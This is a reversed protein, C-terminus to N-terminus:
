SLPYPKVKQLADNFDVKNIFGQILHLKNGKLYHKQLVSQNEKHGSIQQINEHPTGKDELENLLTSRFSHFVKKDTKVKLETLYKGNFWDGIKRGYGERKNWTLEPFLRTEGNKKLHDRYELLGLKILQPHIPVRRISQKTKLTKITDKDITEENIDIAHIGDIIKIDNLELQAIEGRRAGTFLAILPTWYKYSDTFIVHTYIQSGFISKLDNHSFKDRKDATSEEDNVSIGDFSNRQILEEKEAWKFMSSFITLHKNITRPKITKDINMDVLQDMSLDKYAPKKNKDTPYKKLKERVDRTVKRTISSCSRDGLIFILLDLSQRNSIATSEKWNGSNIMDTCYQNILHSLSLTPQTPTTIISSSQHSVEDVPINMRNAFNMLDKADDIIGTKKLAELEEDIKSPDVEISVSETVGNTQTVTKKVIFDNGKFRSMNKNRMKIFLSDFYLNYLKSLRLAENPDYTGLSKKIESKLIHPRLDAPVVQRFYYINHRSRSLYSANKKLQNLLDRM